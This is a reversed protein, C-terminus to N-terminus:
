VEDADLPRLEGLTATTPEDLHCTGIGSPRPRTGERLTVITLSQFCPKTDQAVLV